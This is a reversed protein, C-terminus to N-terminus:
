PNFVFICICFYVPLTSKCTKARLRVTWLGSAVHIDEMCRGVLSVKSNCHSGNRIGVYSESPLLSRLWDRPPTGMPVNIGRGRSGAPKDELLEVRKRLHRRM